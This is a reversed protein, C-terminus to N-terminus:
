ASVPVPDSSTSVTMKTPKTGAVTDIIVPVGDGPRVTVPLTLVM